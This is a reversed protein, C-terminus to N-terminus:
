VFWHWDLELNPQLRASTNNSCHTKDFNVPHRNPGNYLNLETFLQVCVHGKSRFRWEVLPTLTGAVTGIGYILYQTFLQELGGPIRELLFVVVFVFM